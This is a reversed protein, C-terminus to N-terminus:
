AARRHELDGNLIWIEARKEVEEARGEALGPDDLLEQRLDRAAVLPDNENIPLGFAHDIAHRGAVVDARVHHAAPRRLSRLQGLFFSQNARRRLEPGITPMSTM